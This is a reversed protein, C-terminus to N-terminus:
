RRRQGHRPEHKPEHPQQPAAVPPPEASTALGSQIWQAAREDDMEVVEGARYVFHPGALSEVIRVRM